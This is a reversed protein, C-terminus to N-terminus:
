GGVLKHFNTAVQEWNFTVLALILAGLAKSSNKTIRWVLEFKAVKDETEKTRKELGMLTADLFEQREKREQREEDKAKVLGLILTKTETVDEVLQYLKDDM